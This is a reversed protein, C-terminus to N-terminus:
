ARRQRRSEIVIRPVADGPGAADSPQEVEPKSMWGTAAPRGRDHRRAAAVRTRCVARDRDRADPDLGEVIITNLSDSAGIRVPTAVAEGAEIIRYVVITNARTPDILPNDKRVASPLGDIPRSLVAQSPVLVVGEHHRVEVEVDATLGSRLLEETEDLLVKTEFYQADPESAVSM